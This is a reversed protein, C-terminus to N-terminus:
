DTQEGRKGTIFDLLEEPKTSTLGEQFLQNQFNLLAAVMSPRNYHPGVITIWLELERETTETQRNLVQATSLISVALNPDVAEVPESWRGSEGYSDTYFSLQKVSDLLATHDGAPDAAPRVQELTRAGEAALKPLIWQVNKARHNRYDKWAAKLMAADGALVITKIAQVKGLEEIALIALASASPHRGNKLLLEADAILRAANRRALAIGEAAQRSTLPGKYQTLSSSM